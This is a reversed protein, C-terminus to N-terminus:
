AQCTPVQRATQGEALAELSAVAGSLSTVAVVTMTLGALSVNACNSHPLLFVEVGADQAARLRESAGAVGTITGNADIVGVGAVSLNGLLPDPTVMDYVALALMLGSGIDTPAGQVEVGNLVYSDTTTIGLSPTQQEANSSGGVIDVQNDLRKGDRMVTLQITDGVPHLAIAQNLDAVSAVPTSGVTEIVDDPLLLGYSPGSAMVSVVRPAREVTLGALQLAAAEAARQTEQSDLGSAVQPIPAGIPYDVSAPMVAQDPSYFASLGRLLSISQGTVAVGAVQLRGTTPYTTVGTVTLVPKGDSVAYLNTVTGASWVAFPLRIATVATALAIIALGAAM